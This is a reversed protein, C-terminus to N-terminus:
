RTLTNYIVPEREIETWDALLCTEQDIYPWLADEVQRRLELALEHLQKVSYTKSLCRGM